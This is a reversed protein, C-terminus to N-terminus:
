DQVSSVQYESLGEIFVGEYKDERINLATINEKDQFLDFLKENYIQIFSCYINYSIGESQYVYNTMSFLDEISRPIIGQVSREGTQFFETAQGSRRIRKRNYGYYDDSNWNPGFMTYTKGSGTQGYAFITTNFGNPVQQIAQKCFSYVSAQEESEEFVHDYQSRIINTDNM